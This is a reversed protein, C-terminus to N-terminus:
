DGEWGAPVTRARVLRGTEARRPARAPGSRQRRRAGRRARSRRVLDLRQRGAGPRDRGLRWPTAGPRWAPSSPWPRRRSRMPGTTDPTRTGPGTSRRRTSGSPRCSCCTARPEFPLPTVREGMGEVRARGGVLCFPVDAGLRSRWRRTTAGPGACSPAPTPRAAAWGAARAPDAQDPPGGGQPWLGGPGAQGPEPGAGPLRRGAHGARADVRLGAGEPDLELEDALDLTVM